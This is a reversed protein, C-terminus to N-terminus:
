NFMTADCEQVKMLLDDERMRVDACEGIQVNVLREVEELCRMM